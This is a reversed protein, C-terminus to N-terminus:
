VFQKLSGVHRKPHEDTHHERALMQNSEELANTTAEHPVDLAGVM